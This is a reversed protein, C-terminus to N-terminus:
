YEPPLSKRRKAEQLMPEARARTHPNLKVAAQLDEIAEEYRRLFLLRVQGRLLFGPAFSPNLELCRDLDAQARKGLEAREASTEAEQM